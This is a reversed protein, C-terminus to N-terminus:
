KISEIKRLIDNLIIDEGIEEANYEFINSRNSDPINKLSFAEMVKYASLPPFDKGRDFFPLYIAFTNKAASSIVDLLGSRVGIVCVANEAIYRVEDLAFFVHKYCMVSINEPITNFLVDFGMNYLKKSLKNWFMNSVSGNSQADPAIFVYKESLNIRKIKDISNKISNKSVSPHVIVNNHVRLTNKLEDYFHSKINNQLNREFKVFHDRQLLEYFHHVYNITTNNEIHLFHLEFFIKPIKIFPIKDYFLALIDKLYGFTSTFVPANIGNKQMYEDLHYASLFTEGSRCSFNIISFNGLEQTTSQKIYDILASMLFFYTFYTSKIRIFHLISVYAMGCCFNAKLLNIGFIKIKVSYSASDTSVCITRCLYYQKITDRKIKVSKFLRM